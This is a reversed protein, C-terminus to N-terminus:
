KSYLFYKFEDNILWNDDEHKTFWKRWVKFQKDSVCSECVVTIFDGKPIVYVWQRLQRVAIAQVKPGAKGTLTNSLQKSRKNKKKNLWDNIQHKSKSVALSVLWVYQKGTKCWPLLRMKLYANDELKITLVKKHRKTKM